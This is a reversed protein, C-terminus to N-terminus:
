PSEGFKKSLMAVWLLHLASFIVSAIVIGKIGFWYAGAFNLAVGMLATSIKAAMMTHAKMQSMLNLAMTQGAAFVGGSLMMWPLLYSVSAYEKAVIVKFVQAHFLMAALFLIGTVGLTLWTMRWSLSNVKAKRRSDSGDGAHQYFIPTLLQAAMGTVMSIPYYGLQFLVAYLGVEQTAAFLGLAWRDSASQAWVFIGWAGFPWSYGLIQKHWNRQDIVVSNQQAIKRFFAYQSALVLITGLAYGVMAVASSMGLWWILGAAVLLRSWSDMGQHLAVISRQRAANQIGGLISYYGSLAAFTLAASTIAIWEARGAILLGIDVLITMLVIIVTATLVLRRVAKLYGGLGGHEVAPAYFRTIGAGLPGFVILSVFAAATMGLAFEGYTAPDLLETLLRVGVLSGLVAVGQGLVVWFSEKFLRRFRETRFM